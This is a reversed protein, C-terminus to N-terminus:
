NEVSTYYAGLGYQAFLTVLLTSTLIDAILPSAFILAAIVFIALTTVLSSKIYEVEAM